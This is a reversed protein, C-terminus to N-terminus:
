DLCIKNIGKMGLIHPSHSVMIVTLGSNLINRVVSQETNVDLASTFEDLFIIDKAHFLARAICVRQVQGGSLTNSVFSVERKLLVDIPEWDVKAIDCAWALKKWSDPNLEHESLKINRLITGPFLINDQRCLAAVSEPYTATFKDVLFHLYSSKGTGSRGHILYCSGKQFSHAEFVKNFARRKLQVKGHFLIIANENDPNQLNMETVSLPNDCIQKRFEYTKRVAPGSYSFNQLAVAVRRLSPLAKFLAVSFLAIAGALEQATNGHMQYYFASFILLAFIAIIELFIRPMQIVFSHKSELAQLCETQLSYQESIWINKKFYKIEPFAKSTAEILEVRSNEASLRKEGIKRMSKRSTMQYISGVILLCFLTAIAPMGLQYVTALCIAFLLITESLIIFYPEYYFQLLQNLETTLLNLVGRRQFDSQVYDNFIKKSNRHKETFLYNSMMRLSITALILKAFLLLLFIILLYFDDEFKFLDKLIGIYLSDFKKEPTIMLNVIPIVLLLIAIEIVGVILLSFSIAIMKPTVSILKFESKPM